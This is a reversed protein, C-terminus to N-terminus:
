LAYEPIIISSLVCTTDNLRLSCANPFRSLYRAGQKTRRFGDNPIFFRHFLERGQHDIFFDSIQDEAALFMLRVCQYDRAGIRVRYEGVVDYVGNKVLPTRFADGDHSIAGTSRLGIATGSNDEGEAWHEMFHRDKFTYFDRVGDSSEECYALSQVHGNNIRCYSIVQHQKKDNFNIYSSVIEFCDIGHIRAKSGVACENVGLLGKGELVEYEAYRAQEGLKPEVFWGLVQRCEVAGTKGIETLTITPAAKPFDM